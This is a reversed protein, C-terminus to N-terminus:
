RGNLISAVRANLVQQKVRTAGSSYWGEKEKISVEKKLKEWNFYSKKSNIKKICNNM